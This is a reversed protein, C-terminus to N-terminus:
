WLRRTVIVNGTEKDTLTIVGEIFKPTSNPHDLARIAKFDLTANVHPAKVASLRVSGVVIGECSPIPESNKPGSIADESDAQGPTFPQLLRDIGGTSQFPRATLSMQWSPDVELGKIGPESSRIYVKFTDQDSEQLTVPVGLLLHLEEDVSVRDHLKHKIDEIFADRNLESKLPTRERSCFWLPLFVSEHLYGVKYASYSSVGTITAGVLSLSLKLSPAWQQKPLIARSSFLRKKVSGVTWLRRM